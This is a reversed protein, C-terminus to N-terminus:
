SWRFAGRKLLIWYAALLMGVFVLMELFGFLGLARFEVAWPYLFVTEVDFILLLLGALYFKADVRAPVPADLPLGSEFPEAKAKAGPRAVLRGLFHSLVIMGGFNAVVMAAFFVAGAQDQLNM